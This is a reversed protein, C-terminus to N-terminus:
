QCSPYSEAFMATIAQVLMILPVHKRVAQTTIPDIGEVERVTNYQDAWAIIRGDLHIAVCHEGLAPEDDHMPMTIVFSRGWTPDPKFADVVTHVYTEVRRARREREVLTVASADAVGALYAQLIASGFDHANTIITTTDM